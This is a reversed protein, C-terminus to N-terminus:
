TGGYLYPDVEAPKLDALKAVERVRYPPIRGLTYWASVASPWINFHHAIKKPGGAKDIADRAAKARQTATVAPIKSM